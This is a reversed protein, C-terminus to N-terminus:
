GWTALRQAWAHFLKSRCGVLVQVLEVALMRLM